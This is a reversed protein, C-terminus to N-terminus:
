HGVCDIKVREDPAMDRGMAVGALYAQGHMQCMAVNTFDEPVILVDVANERSCDHLDPTTLISCVLVLATIM